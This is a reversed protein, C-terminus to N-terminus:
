SLEREVPIKFVVVKNNLINRSKKVRLLYIIRNWTFIFVRLIPLMGADDKDRNSWSLPLSGNSVSGIDSVSSSPKFNM